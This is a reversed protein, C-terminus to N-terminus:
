VQPTLSVKNAVNNSIARAMPFRLTHVFWGDQLCTRDSM